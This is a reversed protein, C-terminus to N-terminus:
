PGLVPTFTLANVAFSPAVGNNVTQATTLTEVSILNGGTAADWAGYCNETEASGTNTPFTIVVNNKIVGVSTVTTWNATGVAEAVRAYGTYAAETGGTGTGATPCTKFMGVYITTPLTYATGNFYLGMMKQATYSSMGAYATVHVLLALALAVGGIAKTLINRFM